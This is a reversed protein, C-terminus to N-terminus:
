HKKEGVEKKLKEVKNEQKGRSVTSLGNAKKKEERSKSTVKKLENLQKQFKGVVLNARRLEASDIVKKIRRTKREEAKDVM